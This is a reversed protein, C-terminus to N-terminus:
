RRKGLPVNVGFSIGTNTKGLPIYQKSVKGIFSDAAVFINLGTVHFNLMAGYGWGYTSVNGSVAFDLAKVPSINLMLAGKSYPSVKGFRNSFLAGVSMKDYFPMKYEVGLNLTAGFADTKDAVGMDKLAFFDGLEEGIQELQDNVTAGEESGGASLAAFGDFVYPADPNIGAKSVDKWKMYAIDNVSASVILGKTLINSFDYTAGLDLGLGFGNLGINYGLEDWVGNEDYAFKVGAAAAYGKANIMWKANNVQVDMQEMLVEAYAVGLLVKLRAGITLDETVKHTHGIAVDVYNRTYLNLDTVSYNERGMDKLFLFMDRPVSLGVRSHVGLDLTNYGGFAFFGFSLINFDIEAALRNYDNLTANFEEATIDPHMFTVLGDGNKAPFLLSALGINSNAKVNFSGLVPLSVYGQDAMFAPNLRNRYLNGNLFYGTTSIGAQAYSIASVCLLLVVGIYKRINKMIHTM